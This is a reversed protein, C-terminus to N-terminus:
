LRYEGPARLAAKERDPAQQAEALLHADRLQPYLREFDAETAAPSGAIFRRRLHDRLEADAEEGRETEREHREAELRQEREFRIRDNERSNDALHAEWEEAQERVRRCASGCPDARCVREVTARDMRAPMANTTM